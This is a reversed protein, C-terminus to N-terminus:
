SNYTKLYNTWYNYSNRRKDAVLRSGGLRNIFGDFSGNWSKKLKYNTVMADIRDDLLLDPNNVFDMGFKDSLEKYGSYGTVSARSRAIYKYANDWSNGMRGGYFLNWQKMPNKALEQLEADSKGQLRDYMTSHSKPTVIKHTGAQIDKLNKYTYPKEKIGGQFQNEHEVYALASAIFNESMGDKRATNIFNNIFAKQTVRPDGKSSATNTTTQNQSAQNPQKDLAYPYVVDNNSQIQTKDQPQNLPENRSFRSLLTDYGDLLAQRKQQAKVLDFEDYLGDLRSNISNVAETWDLKSEQEKPKPFYLPLAQYSSDVYNNSGSARNELAQWQLQAM